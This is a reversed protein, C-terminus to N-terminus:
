SCFFDPSDPLNTVYLYAKFGESDANTSYTAFPENKESNGLENTSRIAILSNLILLICASAMALFVKLKGAGEDANEKTSNRLLDTIGDQVQKVSSDFGERNEGSKILQLIGEYAIRFDPSSQIQECIRAEEADPLKGEVYAWLKAIDSREPIM